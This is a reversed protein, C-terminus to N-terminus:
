TKSKMAELLEAKFFFIRRGKGVRHAKIAGAKKRTFVATRSCRLFKATEEVTMLEESKPKETRSNFEELQNKISTNILETLDNVSIIVMGDSYM